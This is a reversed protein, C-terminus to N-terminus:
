RATPGDLTELVEAINTVDVTLGIKASRQRFRSRKPPRSLGARALENVAQSVGIGRERRLRDIAAAIDDDFTITTRM